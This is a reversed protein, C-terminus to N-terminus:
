DVPRDRSGLLGFNVSDRILQLHERLIERRQRHIMRLNLEALLV